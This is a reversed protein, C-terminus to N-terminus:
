IASLIKSGQFRRPTAGSCSIPAKTQIVIEVIQGLSRAHPFLEFIARVRPRVVSNYNLGAQLVSDALVAGLHHYVARSTMDSQFVGEDVAFNAISRAALLSEPPRYEIESVCLNM